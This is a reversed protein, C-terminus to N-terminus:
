APTLLSPAVRFKTGKKHRGRDELTEVQVSTRNIKLVKGTTQQGNERGFVVRTGVKFVRTPVPPMTPTPEDGEPFLSKALKQGARKLRGKEVLDLVLSDLATSPSKSYLDTFEPEKATMMRVALPELKEAAWQRSFPAKWHYINAGGRGNNRVQAVEKDKVTLTAAFHATEEGGFYQLNTLSVLAEFRDLVTM